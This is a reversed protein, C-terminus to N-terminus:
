GGGSFIIRIIDGEQWAYSGFESNPQGNVTMSLGGPIGDCLDGNCREGICEPTLRMGIAEFFEGLYLASYDTIKKTEPDVPLREHFHLVGREKHTHTKGLDGKELGFVIEEGCAMVSLEAHIHAAWFCQGADCVIIGSAASATQSFYYYSYGVLALILIAAAYFLKTPTFKRKGFAFLAILALASIGAAIWQAALLRHRVIEDAISDDDEGEHGWAAPLLLLAIALFPM